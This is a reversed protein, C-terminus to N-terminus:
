EGKIGYLAFSSYQAFEFGSINLDIRSIAAITSPFYLSSAFVIDNNTDTSQGALGTITKTTKNKTTSTYDLIDIIGPSFGSALTSGGAILGIRSYGVSTDASAYVLGDGRGDIRHLSYYNGSTTDSNFTAEIFGAFNNVNTSRAIYRIQLHKFTSPISTFSITGQSSGLTVTAISEYSPFAAKPNGALFSSYNTRPTALGGASSLKYVGM